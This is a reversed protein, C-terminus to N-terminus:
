SREPGYAAFFVRLASAVTREIAEESPQENVGFLPAKTLGGQVLGIFQAAAIDTDDMALRGAAQQAALYVSLRTVGYCPGAEFFARGLAPFKESAGIVMRLLSVHEPQIMMGIFRIGLRSLVGRVDPDAEDLDFLREAADRRDIDILARFLAEKSDFYVYLTGKSVGAAKAIDGMSAGDFGNARFVQRAGNLIDRRKSAEQATDEREHALTLPDM